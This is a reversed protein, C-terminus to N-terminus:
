GYLWVAEPLYLFTYGVLRSVNCMVWGDRQKVVKEEREREAKGVGEVPRVWM